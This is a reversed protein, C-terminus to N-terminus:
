SAAQAADQDAYAQLVAAVQRAPEALTRVLKTAPALITGLLKARLVPLPPLEALAIIENSSILENDLYGCKIKVFDSQRSYDAVVKATGPADEFAFAIANSGTFTNEPYQLGTSEFAVKCLSNKVIHFESGVERMKKRLEDLDKMTLGVYETLIFAQSGSMWDVYQTVLEEKKQKSIALTTIRREFYFDKGRQAVQCLSEM